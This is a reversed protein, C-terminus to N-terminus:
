ANLAAPPAATMTALPNDAHVRRGWQLISQFVALGDDSGV